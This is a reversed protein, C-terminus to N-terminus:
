AEAPFRVGTMWATAFRYVSQAMRAEWIVKHSSVFCIADKILFLNLFVYNNIIELCPNYLKKARDSGSHVSLV